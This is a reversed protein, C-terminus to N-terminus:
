NERKCNKQTTEAKEINRNVKSNCSDEAVKVAGLKQRKRRTKKNQQGEKADDM